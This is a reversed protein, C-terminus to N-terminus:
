GYLRMDKKLDLDGDYFGPRPLTADNTLVGDWQKGSRVAHPNFAIMEEFPKVIVNTGEPMYESIWGLLNSVNELEDTYKVLDTNHQEYQITIQM